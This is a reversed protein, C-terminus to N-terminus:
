RTHLDAASPYFDRHRPDHHPDYRASERRNRNRAGCSMCTATVKVTHADVRQRHVNHTTHGLCRECHIRQPRHTM